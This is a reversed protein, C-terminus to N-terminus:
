GMSDVATGPLPLTTNYLINFVFEYYTCNSKQDCANPLDTAIKPCLMFLSVISFHKNHLGLFSVDALWQHQGRITKIGFYLSCKFVVGM